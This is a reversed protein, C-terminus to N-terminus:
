PNLNKKITFVNHQGERRYTMHDSMKRILMIGLGGALREDGPVNVDPDSVTTPDFPQGDDTITMNLHNDDVTATMIIETAGSYDIINGIAEEIMLRLHVAEDNNLRVDEALTKVFTTMRPYEEKLAKLRITTPSLRQIAFMTLDDSQEAEGVFAGVAHKMQEILSQPSLNGDAIAKRAVDYISERTFLEKNANRAENLGDTYLFLITDPELVTELARYDADEFSGVPFAPAFPLEVADSNILVPPEHGASCYVLKGSLLDLVGVFLTVFLDTDKYESMTKNIRSVIVEPKDSHASYGRFLSKTVMMLLAAAVGKGMVDGICFFLRGDRFYYDFLDGGVAKAPKLTGYMCVDNREPFTSPLMAMQIKNAISLESEMSAKEATTTKLQEIYSALSQQMNSFSDRLVKIEDNHRIDPLPANFNGKAVEDAGKALFHLSKTSRRISARCIWFIAQVGILILGLIILGLIYGPTRLSRMPVTVVVSWDTYDIAHYLVLSKQGDVEMYDMGKKGEKIQQCVYDDITDPTAAASDFFNGNMIRSEEDHLIYHGKHSVIFTKYRTNTDHDGFDLVGTKYSQKEIYHVRKLLGEWSIDAGIVGVTRGEKDHIPQVYTVVMQKAGTDDYYPDVFFGNEATLGKQYWEAKFYDHKASGIQSLKPKGKGRSIIYPEFWRGQQPYFYPEFATRYGLINPNLQLEEKLTAMVKEPSDLYQEVENRVNRTAVVHEVMEKEIKENIIHMISFYRMETDANMVYRATFFTIVAIIGMIFFVAYVIHQTLRTSFSRFKQIM